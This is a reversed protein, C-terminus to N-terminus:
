EEPVESGCNRNFFVFFFVTQGLVSRLLLLFFVETEKTIIEM